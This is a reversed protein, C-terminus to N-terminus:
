RLNREALLARAIRETTPDLWDRNRPLDTVIAYLADVLERENEAVARSIINEVTASPYALRSCAACVEAAAKQVHNTM